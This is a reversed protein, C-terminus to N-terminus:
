IIRKWSQAAATKETNGTLIFDNSIAIRFTNDLIIMGGTQIPSDTTVPNLCGTYAGIVLDYNGEGTDPTRPFFSVSYTRGPQADEFLVGNYNISNDCASREGRQTPFIPAIGLAPNFDGKSEPVIGAELYIDSVCDGTYEFRVKAKEATSFLIDEKMKQKYALIDWEGTIKCTKTPDRTEENDVPTNDVTGEEDSTTDDNDRVADPNTDANDAANADDILQQIEEASVGEVNRNFFLFGVVLIGILVIAGAILAQGKKNM